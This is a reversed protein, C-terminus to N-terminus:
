LCVTSPEGQAGPGKGGGKGGTWWSSLFRPLHSVPYTLFATPRSFSKPSCVGTQGRGETFLTLGTHAFPAVELAALEVRRPLLATFKASGSSEQYLGGALVWASASMGPHPARCPRQIALWKGLLVALHM